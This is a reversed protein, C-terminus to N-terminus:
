LPGFCYECTSLQYDNCNVLLMNCSIASLVQSALKYVKFQIVGKPKPLLTANSETGVTPLVMCQLCVTITLIDTEM